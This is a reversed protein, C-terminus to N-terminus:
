YHNVEALLAEFLVEDARLDELLTEDALLADILQTICSIAGSSV